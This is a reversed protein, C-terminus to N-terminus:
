QLNDARAERLATAALGAAFFLCMVAVSPAGIEGARPGAAGSYMPVISWPCWRAWGTAGLVTGAVLTLMTYGLPAMYGKGAVAAFAVAPGLALILATVSLVWASWSLFAAPSFGPLGLAHGLALTEAIVVLTLVFMWAASAALKSLTFWLRPLPLGLMNKATGEAYERGFIWAVIVSYLIMGGLGAMQGVMAELGAWDASLDGAAFNAKQGILGLSEAVGPNSVIWLFLGAISGMFLWAALTAWLIPCRRLKLFEGGLVKLFM